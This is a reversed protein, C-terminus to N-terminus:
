AITTRTKNRWARPGILIFAISTSTGLISPLIASWPMYRGFVTGAFASTIAVYAGMMKYLHEQVWTRRLWSIPLVIRLLDYASLAVLGGLIPWTLSPAWPQHLRHMLSIFIWPTLLGVIRPIIDLTQPRRGRLQMARYGAFVDYISLITVVALFARFDFAVLGITATAVVVLYAYIFLLGIRTHLGRRKPSCIAIIGLALAITGFAVHIIINLQHLPTHASM